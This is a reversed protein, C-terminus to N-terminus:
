PKDPQFPALPSPPTTIIKLSDAEVMKAVESQKSLNMIESKLIIYESNLEKIEEDLKKISYQTKISYHSNYIYFIVVLFLFFMFIGNRGVWDLRIYNEPDLIKKSKKKPGTSSNNEQETNTSSGGNSFPPQPATRQVDDFFENDLSM